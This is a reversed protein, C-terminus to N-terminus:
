AIGFRYGAGRVTHLLSTEGPAALKARLRRVYVEIVNSEVASERDWLADELMRRSVVRGANRMFYELFATERATLEIRRGNRTALRTGRDFVLDAVRLEDPVPPQERRTISRLRAELEGFVFPKRLYDDAGADLGAIVDQPTDRSTLMLVPTALGADRLSRVVARGDKGPLNWDLVVADYDGTAANAEADNGDGVADVVHGQEVLGRRLLERLREDDEVVLL